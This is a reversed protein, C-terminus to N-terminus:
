AEHAEEGRLFYVTDLRVTEMARCIREPTTQRVQEALDEPTEERGVAAQSLCFNEMKGQSDGMSAYANLLTSRAGELEWDELQGKQVAELQALIEDYAKQYNEFEIGSSVTILGKQRHYMSSAYYCLSMKERVNLFLKSNSSGGFLSNGVLLAAHDESGCSFGMGLKGQTVDLSEEVRLVEQRAPHVDGQRLEAVNERPLPALVARLADEVRSRPASGSYILELRASAILERYQEYLRGAQIKAATEEDGIQLVGYPEGACMEQLLRSLAYERKDNLISRIADILNTRESEVYSKVFRGGETVPSCIVEGLLEAVPELLKEGGPTMRDDILSAVFGVCQNEGKKRVTSDIRAGYLKDLRASLSAMDPCSVTGRRLVAPLMAYASATERRMPTVFQASLLSTKFKRAPLYTLFVGEALRTRTVEM